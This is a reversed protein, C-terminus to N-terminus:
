SGNKERYERVRMRPGLPLWPTPKDATWETWYIKREVVELWRCDNHSLAVPRWAFWDHWQSLADDRAQLYDSLRNCNFRM